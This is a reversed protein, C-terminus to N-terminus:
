AWRDPAEVEAADGSASRPPGARRGARLATVAAFFRSLEAAYHAGAASWRTELVVGSVGRTAWRFVTPRQAAAGGCSSAARCTRLPVLGQKHDWDTTM